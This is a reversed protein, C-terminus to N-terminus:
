KNDLSMFFRHIKNPTNKRKIQYDNLIQNFTDIGTKEDPAELEFEFDSQGNYTSYDLVILVDKYITEHRITTLSGYYAMDNFNINLKNLQDAIQDKKIIHGNKWNFAEEKTLTDHTELLGTSHPQKLTLIYDNNKERIRLASSNKRLSFDSTEFYYNTQKQGKKPFPLHTLLHDFEKKTLLNKYEIEIEQSVFHGGISWTFYM